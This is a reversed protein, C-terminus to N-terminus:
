CSNIESKLDLVSKVGNKLLKTDGKPCILVVPAQPANVVTVGFEDILSNTLSKPSIAYYWNFNNRTIHDLVKSEDENPDTDLSISIFSDDEEHLEKIINQQKTCTPCWVAFSELLIPKKFQNVKFSQSTRIDKLVISKWEEGEKLTDENNSTDDILPNNSNDTIQNIESIIKNDRIENNIDENPTFVFAMTILGMIIVVGLTFWILKM